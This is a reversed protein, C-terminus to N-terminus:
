QGDLDVRKDTVTVTEYREGNEDYGHHLEVFGRRKLSQLAMFYDLGTLGASIARVRLIWVSVSTGPITTEGAANALVWIEAQKLDQTPVVQQAELVPQEAIKKVLAKARKSIEDRLRDFASASEPAYKIITRHQIDFPLEARENSCVLIVSRGASFAYGLEYWVNPNDTTIDALCLTANRIQEEIAEILRETSPDKDVRYPELGAQELAPKYVDAYRKDFKASFPQIVFCTPM